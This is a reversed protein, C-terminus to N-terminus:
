PTAFRIAGIRAGLLRTDHTSFLSAPSILPATSIWLQNMGPRWCREEVTWEYDGQGPPMARADLRCANVILGIAPRQQPRSAPTATITVRITAPKAVAIRLSADAAGTWRFFDPDAEVPHWGSGFPANDNMPVAAAASAGAGLMVGSRQVGACISATTPGDSAAVAYAPAPALSVTIPTHGNSVPVRLSQATPALERSGSTPGLGAARLEAMGAADAAVDAIEFAVRRPEIAAVAIPAAAAMRIVVADTGSGHIVLSGNALLLSVDTWSGNGLPVCPVHGAVAAVAVNGILAREFIFGHRELNAGANAFAFIAAGQQMQARVVEPSQLVIPLDRGALAASLRLMADARHAEAVFVANGPLDRINVDSATRTRGESPLDRGLQWLRLRTLAPDAFTILAAATILAAGARPSVAGRIWRLGFAFATWGGIAITLSVADFASAPAFASLVAAVLWALCAVRGPSPVALLSAIGVVAVFSGLPSFEHILPSPGLTGARDIATWGRDFLAAAAAAVALVAWGPRRGSWWRHAAILAVLLLPPTLADFTWAIGRGWFTPSMALCLTAFAAILLPFRLAILWAGFAAATLAASVAALDRLASRRGRAIAIAFRGTVNSITTRGGVPVDRAPQALQVGAADAPSFVHDREGTGVGQAGGALCALLVVAAAAGLM